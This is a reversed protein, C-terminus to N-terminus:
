IALKTGYASVISLITFVIPRTPWGQAWTRSGFAVLGFLGGFLRRSIMM